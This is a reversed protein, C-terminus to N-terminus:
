YQIVIQPPPKSGRSDLAARCLLALVALLNCAIALYPWLTHELNFKKYEQQEDYELRGLKDQSGAAEERQKSFQETVVKRMARELGFGHAVQIIMLGFSLFAFFGILPIRWMWLKTLAPPIRSDLTHGTRDAWALVVAVILALLCPLLLEWNSDVKDLWGAPTQMFREMAYDRNIAGFLAKWPGQTDVASTGLYTGVWPFFTCVFTITLLIAPLWAVGRPSIVFGHSKTYGSAMPASPTSPSTGVPPVPPMLGPPLPPRTSPIESSLMTPEPSRTASALPNLSNSGGAVATALPGTQTIPPSAPVSADVLVTPNYRAPAPFSHHCMPCTVDGGSFDDPLTITKLCKPCLLKSVHAKGPPHWIGFCRM